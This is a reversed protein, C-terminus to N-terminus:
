SACNAYRHDPKAVHRSPHRDRARRQVRFFSTQGDRWAGGELVRQSLAVRLDHAGAVLRIGGSWLELGTIGRPEVPEMQRGCCSCSRRNTLILTGRSVEQWGYGPKGFRKAVSRPVLDVPVWSPAGILQGLPAGKPRLRRCSSEKTGLAELLQFDTAYYQVEGAPLPHIAPRPALEGGAALHHRLRLAHM